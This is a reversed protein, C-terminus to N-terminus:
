TKLVPTYVGKSLVLGYLKLVMGFGRFGNQLTRLVVGVLTQLHQKEEENLEAASIKGLLFTLETAIM